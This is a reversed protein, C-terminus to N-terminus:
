PSAPSAPRADFDFATFSVRSRFGPHRGWPYGPPASSPRLLQALLAFFLWLLDDEEDEARHVALVRRHDGFTNDAVFVELVGGLEFSSWASRPWARGGLCRPGPEREDGAVRRRVRNRDARSLM